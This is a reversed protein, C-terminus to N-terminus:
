QSGSASAFHKRAGLGPRASMEQHKMTGYLGENHAGLSGTLSPHTSPAKTHGCGPPKHTKLAALYAAMDSPTEKLARPKIPPLNTAFLVASCKLLM